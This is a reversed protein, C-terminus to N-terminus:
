IWMGHRHERRAPPHADRGHPEPSEGNVIIISVGPYAYIPYGNRDHGAPREHRAVLDFFTQANKYGVRVCGHSDARKGLLGIEGQGYAAHVARGKNDFYVAHPMPVNNFKKPAHADADIRMVSFTGTHTTCDGDDCDTNDASGTSVPWPTTDIPKGGVYLRMTQTAIDVVAKVSPLREHDAFAPKGVLLLPLLAAFGWRTM